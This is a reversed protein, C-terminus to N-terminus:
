PGGTGCGRSCSSTPLGPTLPTQRTTEGQPGELVYKRCPNVWGKQGTGMYTPTPPRPDFICFTVQFSHLARSCVAQQRGVPAMQTTVPPSAPRRQKRM